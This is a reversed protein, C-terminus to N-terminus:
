RSLIFRELATLDARWLDEANASSIKLFDHEKQHVENNLEEIRESTFSSIRTNLLYDYESTTETQLGLPIDDELPGKRLLLLNSWKELGMAELLLENEAKSRQAKILDIDGGSVLEIFRSKNKLVRAEFAASNTLLTKRKKYLDLRLDFFSDAIDAPTEYKQIKKNQDFLHMNSISLSTELDFEKSLRTSTSFRDIKASRLTVVFSISSSTHKEVFSQIQGDKQMAILRAKYDNIWRGIPLESITVTSRSSREIKGITFYGDTNPKKTITGSFGEIHPIIEPVKKQNLKCQIYKIVTLVNGPPVYTSWGTGIGQCGNVLVLPIIPCYFEPEIKQGDDEKYSLLPDDVEPFLLRAVPSLKTFIYRPSAADKGGNFRTGFQGSPVLLPLNNSGVFDQAMGVITSHLSQEGHHYATHEACYGALQAVKIENKLNRKFCSYLVKRQSPKLGDVMSPISRINDANAFHIMEQDVFDEFSINSKTGYGVESEPALFMDLIWNRRDSARDKEFLMDLREGDEESDWVFPRFHRDFDKFYEKAELNTSTGLGKYYKINYSKREEPTLSQKWDDYEQSSFFSLTKGTGSKKKAKLLPTRFSCLFSTAATDDIPPHLLAPWFHRFFNIILGKIHSGDTDQDTMLMVRGYRLSNREETTEYTKEFDLGLILCINKVETNNAIKSVSAVRVNLFKGRLPFVGYQERGVIELGAIALAKASDGETLILTCDKSKNSGALHADDLKDISLLQRRSNKGGVSNIEKLLSAHQAGQISRSVHELIGIGGKDESAVLDNLFRASLNCESGFTSPNSTLTDKMQSDFTPNEILANCFVFLHRKIWSPPISSLDPFSKELKHALKKTLQNIVTNVHTGARSTFMGNVFSVCEFSGTPSLAVGIEWRSNVKSYLLPQGKPLFLKCYEEFGNIKLEVDNLIVDLQGHTVGAIDAVRRCMFAFDDPHLVADAIEADDTLRSLDPVFTIRTFDQASSLEDEDLRVIEPKTSQSMNNTWTQKYSLKRKVDVTEVTFEKSFINTLKAGYGHRGGTLRKSEDDFNSGTLLHGFVLEPVYMKEQKHMQIPIGRGNNWISIRPVRHTSACGPDITVEIRTTPNRINPGHRLRNDSANVLIEDFIKILGPVIETTKIRMQFEPLSGKKTIEANSMSYLENVISPDLVFSSTNKSRETPGIYISPRLLIHEVPTKRSYMAEVTKEDESPKQPKPKGNRGSSSSLASFNRRQCSFYRIQPYNAETLFPSRSSNQNITSLLRSESDTFADLKDFASLTWCKRVNTASLLSSSRRRCANLKSLM